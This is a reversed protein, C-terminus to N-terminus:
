VRRRWVCVIPNWAQYVSKVLIEEGFLDQIQKVAAEPDQARVEIEDIGGIPVDLKVLFDRM